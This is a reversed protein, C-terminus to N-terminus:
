KAPTALCNDVFRVLCCGAEVTSNVLRYVTTGDLPLLEGVPTPARTRRRFEEDVIASRHVILHRMAELTVLDRQGLISDLDQSKGFASAYAKQIGSVSTFNFKPKLVDGLKSRLDFSYKALLGVAIQKGSLGEQAEGVPLLEFARQGLPIPQANLATVWLDTTLVEFATWGASIAALLLSRVSSRIDDFSLLMRLQRKSEQFVRPWDEEHKAKRLREAEARVVKRAKESSEYKSANGTSVLARAFYGLEVAQNIGHTLLMLPLALLCSIDEANKDFAKTIPVLIESRVDVEVSAISIDSPLLKDSNITM